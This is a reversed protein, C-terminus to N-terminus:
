VVGPQSLTAQLGMVASKEHTPTRRTAVVLVIEKRDGASFFSQTTQRNYVFNVSNPDNM